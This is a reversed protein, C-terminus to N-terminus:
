YLPWDVFDASAGVFVNLEAPITHPELMYATLRLHGELVVLNTGHGASVLILESFSEGLRLREAATFFGQNSVGFM